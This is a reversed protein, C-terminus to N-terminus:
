KTCRYFWISRNESITGSSSALVLDSDNSNGVISINYSPLSM